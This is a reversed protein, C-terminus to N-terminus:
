DDDLGISELIARSLAEKVEPKGYYGDAIRQRVQIVKGERVPSTGRVLLRDQAPRLPQGAATRDGYVGGEAVRSRTRLLGAQIREQISQTAATLPPRNPTGETYM